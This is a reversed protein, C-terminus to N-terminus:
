GTKLNESFIVEMTPIENKKIKPTNKEEMNTVFSTDSITKTGSVIRRKRVAFFSGYIRGTMEISFIAAIRPEKSVGKPLGCVQKQKLLGANGGSLKHKM